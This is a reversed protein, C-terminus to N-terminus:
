SGPVAHCLKADCTRGRIAHCPMARCLVAIRPAARCSMGCAHRACPWPVAYSKCSMAFWPVACHRRENSPHPWPVVLRPTAHLKRIHHGDMCMINTKGISALAEPNRAACAGARERARTSARKNSHSRTHRRTHRRAHKHVHGPNHAHGQACAHAHVHTHARANAHRRARMHTCM